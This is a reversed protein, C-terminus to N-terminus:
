NRPKDWESYRNGSTEMLKVVTEAVERRAEAIARRAEPLGRKIEAANRRAAAIHRDEFEENAAPTDDALEAEREVSEAEEEVLEAAIFPTPKGEWNRQWTIVTQETVRYRSAVTKIAQNDAIRGDEVWRLYRIAAEQLHRKIPRHPRGRQRVPTLLDSAVGACLDEFAIALDRRIEDPLPEGSKLAQLVAFQMKSTNQMREAETAPRSNVVLGDATEVPEADINVSAKEKSDLYQTIPSPSRLHRKGM